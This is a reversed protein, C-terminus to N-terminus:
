GPAAGRFGQLLTGHGLSAPLVLVWVRVHQMCDGRDGLHQDQLPRHVRPGGTLMCPSVGTCLRADVTVLVSLAWRQRSPAMHIYSTSLAGTTVKTSRNICPGQTNTFDLLQTPLTWTPITFTSAHREV